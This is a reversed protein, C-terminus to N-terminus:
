PAWHLEETAPNFAWAAVTGAAVLQDLLRGLSAADTGCARSLRDVEIGLGRTHHAALALATLRTRAPLARLPAGCTIRLAWDAAQIQDPRSPSQTLPDLLQAIVTGGQPCLSSQRVLHLWRNQELEHWPTSTRGLRMGRLLGARFRVQGRSDARLACQLALM